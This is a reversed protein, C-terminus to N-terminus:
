PYKKNAENNQTFHCVVAEHGIRAKPFILFQNNQKQKRAYVPPLQDWVHKAPFFSQPVKNHESNTSKMQNYSISTYRKNM